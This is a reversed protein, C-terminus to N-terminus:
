WFQILLKLFSVDVCVCVRSQEVVTYSLGYSLLQALLDSEDHTLGDM